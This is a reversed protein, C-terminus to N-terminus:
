QGDPRSVPGPKVTMPDPMGVPRPRGSAGVIPIKGQWFLDVEEWYWRSWPRLYRIFDDPSSGAPHLNTNQMDEIVGIVALEGVYPEGERIMEEVLEFLADVPHTDGALNLILLHRVLQGVVLYHLISGDDETFLEEM